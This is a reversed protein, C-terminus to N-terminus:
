NQDILKKLHPNNEFVISRAPEGPADPVTRPYRNESSQLEYLKIEFMGGNNLSNKIQNLSVRNKDSTVTIDVYKRIRGIVYFVNYRVDPSNRIKECIEAAKPYYIRMTKLYDKNSNAMKLHDRSAEWYVQYQVRFKDWSILTNEPQKAEVIAYIEQGNEVKYAIIDPGCSSGTTGHENVTDCNFLRLFSFRAYVVTYGHAMLDLMGCLLAYPEPYSKRNTGSIIYDLVRNKIEEVNFSCNLMQSLNNAAIYSAIVPAMWEWLHSKGHMIYYVDISQGITKWYKAVFDRIEEEPVQESQLVGGLGDYQDEEDGQVSFSRLRKIGDNIIADLACFLMEFLFTKLLSVIMEKLLSILLASTIAGPSAIFAYTVLLTISWRLLELMIEIATRLWWDLSALDIHFIYLMVIKIVEVVVTGILMGVVIGLVLMILISDAAEAAPIKALVQTILTMAFFAATVGSLLCNILIEEVLDGPRETEHVIRWTVILAGIALLGIEVVRVISLMSAFEEKVSTSTQAGPMSMDFAACSVVSGGMFSGASIGAVSWALSVIQGTISSAQAIAGTASSGASSRGASNGGSGGTGGFSGTDSGGGSGGSGLGAGTGAGGRGGASGGGLQKILGQCKKMTWQVVYMIACSIAMAVLGFLLDPGFTKEQLLWVIIFVMFRLATRVGFSKAAILLGQAYLLFVKPVWTLALNVIVVDLTASCDAAGPPSVLLLDDAPIYCGSRNGGTSAGTGGTGGDEDYGEFGSWCIPYAATSNGFADVDVCDLWTVSRDVTVRFDGGEKITLKYSGSTLYQAYVEKESVLPQEAWSQLQVIRVLLWADTSICGDEDLITITYLIDTPSWSMDTARADLVVSAYELMQLAEDRAAANPLYTADGLFTAGVEHYGAQCISAGGGTTSGNVAAPVFSASFEGGTATTCTAVAYGDLLMTVNAGSIGAPSISRSVNVADVMTGQITIADSRHYLWAPRDSAYLGDSGRSVSTIDLTVPRKRVTFHLVMESSEHYTDGPYSVRISQAETSANPDVICTIFGTGSPLDGTANVAGTVTPYQNYLISVNLGSAMLTGNALTVSRGIADGDDERLRAQVVVAENTYLEREVATGNAQLIAAAISTRSRVHLICSASGRYPSLTENIRAEVVADGTPWTAPIRWTITASPNTPELLVMEISTGNGTSGNVRVDVPVYQAWSANSLGRVTISAADGPYLWDGDPLIVALDAQISEVEVLATASASLRSGDGGITAAVSYRGVPMAASLVSWEGTANTWGSLLNCDMSSGDPRTCTIAVRVRAVVPNGAADSARVHIPIPDHAPLTAPVAMDLLTTAPLVTLGGAISASHNMGVAIITANGLVTVTLAYAGADLSAADAIFFSAVGDASTVNEVLLSHGTGMVMLVVPALAIPQGGSLEVRAVVTCTSGHMVTVPAARVRIGGPAVIAQVTAIAPQGPATGGYSALLTVMRATASGTLFTGSDFTFQAIGDVGTVSTGVGVAPAHGDVISLAVAAGNMAVQRGDRNAHLSVAMTENAGPSLTPTPSLGVFALVAPSRSVNLCAPVEVVSPAHTANGTYEASVGYTGPPLNVLWSMAVLGTRAETENSGIYTKNRTSPDIAYLDVPAGGVMRAEGSRRSEVLRARFALVDGPSAEVSASAAAPQVLQVATRIGRHDIIAQGAQAKFSADGAFSANFVYRGRGGLTFCQWSFADSFRFRLRAVGSHATVAFGAPVWTDNIYVAFNVRKGGLAGSPLPTAGNQGAAAALTAVLEIDHETFAVAGDRGKELGAAQLDVVIAKRSISLVYAEHYQVYPNPNYVVMSLTYNGEAFFDPSICVLVEVTKGTSVIEIRPAIVHAGAAGSTIALELTGGIAPVFSVNLIGFMEALFQMTKRGDGDNAGDPNYAEHDLTFHCSASANNNAYDTANVVVDYEGDAFFRIDNTKSYILPDVSTENCELFGSMVADVMGGRRFVQFYVKEIGLYEDNVRASINLIDGTITRGDRPALIRIEPASSDIRADGSLSSVNTRAKAEAEVIAATVFPQAQQLSPAVMAMAERPFGALGGDLATAMGGLASADVKMSCFLEEPPTTCSICYGIHTLDISVMILLVSLFRLGGRKHKMLNSTFVLGTYTLLMMVFIPVLFSFQLERAVISLSKRCQMYTENGAYWAEITYNAVEDPTWTFDAGVGDVLTVNVREYYQGNRINVHVIAGRLSGGHDGNVTVQITMVVGVRAEQGDQFTVVIRTAQKAAVTVNLAATTPLFTGNVGFRAAVAYAGATDFSADIRTANLTTTFQLMRLAVMGGGQYVGIEVTVDQSAIYRGNAATLGVYYTVNLGAVCTAPGAIVIGTQLTSAREAEAIAGAHSSNGAFAAVVRVAVHGDVIIVVPAGGTANVQRLLVFAPFGAPQGYVTLSLPPSPIATNGLTGLLLANVICEVNSTAENFSIGLDIDIHTTVRDVRIIISPSVVHGLEIARAGSPMTAVRCEVLCGALWAPVVWPISCSGSSGTTGQDIAFWEGGGDGDIPRAEFSVLLDPIEASLLEDWACGQLMVREGTATRDVATSIAAATRHVHFTRRAMAADCWTNGDYLLDIEYTGPLSVNITCWEGARAESWITTGNVLISVPVGFLYTNADVDIAEPRIAFGATAPIYVVDEPVTIASLQVHSKRIAMTATANCPPVAEYLDITDLSASSVNWGFMEGAAVGVLRAHVEHTGLGAVQLRALRAIGSADSVGIGRPVGGILFEVWCGAAPSGSLFDACSVSASFPTSPTATVLGREIPCSVQVDQLIVPRRGVDFSLTSGNVVTMAVQGPLTFEFRILTFALDVFSDNTQLGGVSIVFPEGPLSPTSFAPVLLTATGPVFVADSDTVRQRTAGATGNAIANEWCARAITLDARAAVPRGAGDALTITITALRDLIGPPDVYMSVTSGTYTCPGTGFFRQGIGVTMSLTHRVKLTYTVETGNMDYIEQTENFALAFHLEVDRALFEIGGFSSIDSVPILLSSAGNPFAFTGVSIMRSNIIRSQEIRPTISALGFVDPSGGSADAVSVNFFYRSFPSTGVVTIDGGDPGNELGGAYRQITGSANEVINVSVRMAPKLVHLVYRGSPFSGNRTEFCVRNCQLDKSTTINATQDPPDLTLDWLGAVPLGHHWPLDAYIRSANADLMLPDLLIQSGAVLFGQMRGGMIPFVVVDGPAFARVVLDPEVVAYDATSVSGDGNRTVAMVQLTYHGSPWGRLEFALRVRAEALSLNEEFQLADVKTENLFLSIERSLGGVASKNIILDVCAIDDTSFERLSVLNSSNFGPLGHPDLALGISTRDIPVQRAKWTAVLLLPKPRGDLWGHLGDSLVITVNKGDYSVLNSFNSTIQGPEARISELGVDLGPLSFMVSRHQKSTIHAAPFDTSLDAITFGSEFRTAVDQEVHPICTIPAAQTRAVTIDIWGDDLYCNLAGLWTDQWASAANIDAYRAGALHLDLTGNNVCPTVDVRSMNYMSCIGTTANLLSRSTSTGTGVVLGVGAPHWFGDLSIEARVVRWDTAIGLDVSITENISCSAVMTARIEAFDNIIQPYPWMDAFTRQWICATSSDVGSRDFLVVDKDWTWDWGDLNVNYDQLPTNVSGTDDIYYYNTASKYPADGKRLGVFFASELARTMDSGSSGWWSQYIRVYSFTPPCPVRRSDLCTYAPSTSQFRGLSWTAWAADPGSGDKFSHYGGGLAWTGAVSGYEENGAHDVVANPQMTVNYTDYTPRIGNNGVFGDISVNGVHSTRARWAPLISTRYSITETTNIELPELHSDTSARISDLSFGPHPSRVCNRQTQIDFNPAISAISFALILISALFPILRTLRNTNKM